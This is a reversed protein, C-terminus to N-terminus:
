TKTEIRQSEKITEIMKPLFDIFQEKEAYISKEVAEILNNILLRYPRTVNQLKYETVEHTFTQWAEIESADYLFIVNGKIEGHNAKAKDPKWLVVLNVGLRGLCDQMQKQVKAIEAKIM